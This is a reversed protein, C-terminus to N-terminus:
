ALTGLEIRRQAATALPHKSLPLRRVIFASLVASLDPIADLNEAVQVENVQSALDETM